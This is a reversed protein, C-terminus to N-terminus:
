ALLRLGSGAALLVFDRDFSIITDCGEEVAVLVNAHDVMSATRDRWGLLRRLAVAEIEAAVSVPYCLTLAHRYLATMPAWGARRAIALAEYLTWNTTVYTAKESALQRM